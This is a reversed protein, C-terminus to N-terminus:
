GDLLGVNKKWNIFFEPAALALDGEGIKDVFVQITEGTCVLDGHQNYVEYHFVMKAAPSDVFITKITAVDGYRLPLKHDTSSKVIPTAFGYKKQDLYSIGHHRGFAERGDEFYQIYNGHWVIGLPDTEVFRIRVKSTHSIQKHNSLTKRKM